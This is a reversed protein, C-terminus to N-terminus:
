SLPLYRNAERVNSFDNFRVGNAKMIPHVKAAIMQRLYFPQQVVFHHIAHTGGFNFCFLHLPWMFWGKFIQTQQVAHAVGGYYHLYSTVTNLCASRLINPAIIVVMLFDIVQMTNVLWLPYSLAQAYFYNLSHFIIFSYISLYYAVAIPFGANLVAMYNFAKVEKSLVRCCLTMGILGDFIVIFRLIINQIGNGVLREELDEPTGSKNHHLLHIKRRYWPNITNPRMIWVTLLMFHHVPAQKSFYQKHILDHELEHSLSAFIASVIIVLWAPSINETYLYAMLYMGSFACLLILLGLTNQYKLWTYQQRLRREEQKVGEVINIFQTHLLDEM